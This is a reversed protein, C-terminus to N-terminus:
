SVAGAGLGTSTQALRYLADYDYARTPGKVEDIRMRNGTPGLTYTCGPIVNSTPVHTATLTQVRNTAAM